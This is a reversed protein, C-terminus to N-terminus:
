EVIVESQKPELLEALTLRLFFCLLPEPKRQHDSHLDFMQDLGEEEDV